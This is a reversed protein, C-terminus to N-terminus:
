GSFQFFEPFADQRFSVRVFGTNGEAGSRGAMSRATFFDGRANFLLNFFLAETGLYVDSLGAAMSKTLPTRNDNNMRLFDTIKLYLRFINRFNDGPGYSLLLDYLTQEVGVGVGLFLDNM